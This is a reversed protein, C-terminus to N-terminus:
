GRKQTLMEYGGMAESGTPAVAGNVVALSPPQHRQTSQPSIFKGDAGQLPAQRTPAEAVPQAPAGGQSQEWEARAAAVAAATAEAIREELSKGQLQTLAEQAKRHEQARNFQQLFWGYPHPQRLAVAHAQDPAADIFKQLEGFKEPGLHQEVMTRSITERDRTQEQRVAVVARQVEAATHDRLWQAYRAPDELPDPMQATAEDQKRKIEALQREAALARQEAQTLKGGFEERTRLLVNLPVVHDQPETPAQPAVPTEVPTEAQVPAPASPEPSVTEATPPTVAEPTPTAPESSGILEEYGSM